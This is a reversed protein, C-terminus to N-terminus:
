VCAAGGHGSRRWLYSKAFRRETALSTEVGIWPYEGHCSWSNVVEKSVGITLWDLGSGSPPFYQVKDFMAVTSMVKLILSLTLKHMRKPVRWFRHSPCAYIVSGSGSAVALGVLLDDNRTTHGTVDLVCLLRITDLTQPLRKGDHLDISEVLFALRQRDESELVLVRTIEM